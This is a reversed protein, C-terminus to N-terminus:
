WWWWKKRWESAARRPCHLHPLGDLSCAWSRSAASRIPYHSHRRSLSRVQRLGCQSRGSGAAYPAFTGSVLSSQFLTAKHPGSSKWLKSTDWIFSQPHHRRCTPFGVLMTLNGHFSYERCRNNNINKSNIQKRERARLADTNIKDVLNQIKLGQQSLNWDFFLLTKNKAWSSLRRCPRKTM